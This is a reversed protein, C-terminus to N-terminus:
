NQSPTPTLDHIKEKNEKKNESNITVLNVNLLTIIM